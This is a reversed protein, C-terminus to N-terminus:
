LAVSDTLKINSPGIQSNLYVDASPSLKPFLNKSVPEVGTAEVM